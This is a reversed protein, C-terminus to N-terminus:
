EQIKIIDSITINFGHNKMEEIASSIYGLYRRYYYGDPALVLLKCEPRTVAVYHLHEIGDRSFDYNQANIIVQKFELGKSSHITGSTHKYADQNYTPEYKDDKVVQYLVKVENSIKDHNETYGLYSYLKRVECTFTELSDLANLAGEIFRRLESIKFSEPMLIEDYFDYESFAKNYYCSALARSVWVHESELDAYDLPSGPIYKFELNVQNLLNAWEEADSNSFNLFACSENTDIWNRIYSSAEDKSQYKLMEVEDNFEIDKYNDRVSEIFINAYNQIAPVSRFNHLLEFKRFRPNTFLGTFGTSYAGRWSYIAQKEDGVIFLPIELEECLYMFFKHMDVDSDQYEDIYVRYYKSILYKRASDSKKLIDLALQFAFNKKVDDYKCMFLTEKIRNIGEDFTKVQNESSYDPKIEGKCEAGYVDYMFPQIIETLVFNDNTGVFGNGKNPGLRHLIERAAKRTFTIAAFTQYSKVEVRDHIIRQITTYTKGTGASASIVINGEDIIAEERSNKDILQM